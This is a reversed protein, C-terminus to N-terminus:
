FTQNNWGWERIFEFKVYIADPSIGLEESYIKCIEKTMRECNESSAEGLLEVEVFAQPFDKEGHFWLRCRDAFALMLWQESKGPFVTIAEGLRAKLIEEKEPPLEINLRTNIFPM